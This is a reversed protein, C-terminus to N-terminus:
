MRILPSPPNPSGGIFRPCACNLAYCLGNKGVRFVVTYWEAYGERSAYAPVSYLGWHIFIGLKADSFWQPYGRQNISEWTPLVQAHTALVTILFLATLIRKM